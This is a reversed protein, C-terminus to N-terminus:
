LKDEIMERYIPDIFKKHEIYVIGEDAGTPKHEDFQKKIKEYLDDEFSFLDKVQEVVDNITHINIRSAIGRIYREEPSIPTSLSIHSKNFEFTDPPFKSKNDRLISDILIENPIQAKNKSLIVENFAIIRKESEDLDITKLISIKKALLTTDPKSISSSSASAFASEILSILYHPIEKTNYSPFTNFLEILKVQKDEDKVHNLRNIIVKLKGYTPLNAPVIELATGTLKHSLLRQWIEIPLAKEEELRISIPTLEYYDTSESLHTILSDLQPTIRTIEYYAERDAKTFENEAHHKAFKPTVLIRSDIPILPASTEISTGSMFNFIAIASAQLSYDSPHYDKFKLLATVLHELSSTDEKEYISKVYSKAQKETDVSPDITNITSIIDMRVFDSSLFNIVPEEVIEINSSDPTADKEIIIQHIVQAINYSGHLLDQAVYSKSTAKKDTIYNYAHIIDDDSIDDSSITTTKPTPTPKPKPEISVSKPPKPIPTPSSSPTYSSGTSAFEGTLSQDTKGEIEKVLGEAALQFGRRNIQRRYLGKLKSYDSPDTSASDLRSLRIFDNLKSGGIIQIEGAKIPRSASNIIELIYAKELDEASSM